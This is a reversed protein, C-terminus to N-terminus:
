AADLRAGARGHDFQLPAIRCPRLPGRRKAKAEAQIRDVTLRDLAAANDKLSFSVVHSTACAPRSVLNGSESRSHTPKEREFKVGCSASSGSRHRVHVTTGAAPGKFSETVRFTTISVGSAIARSSQAVATFVAASDQLLGEATPNRACSCAFASGISAAMLLANLVLLRGLRM